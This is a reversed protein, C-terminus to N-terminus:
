SAAIDVGMRKGTQRMLERTRDAYFKFKAEDPAPMGDGIKWMRALAHCAAGYNNDCSKELFPKAKQPENKQLFLAALRYCAPAYSGDCAREFHKAALDKDGGSQAQLIGHIHCAEVHGANCARNCLSTGRPLDKEVIGRVGRVYMVAANYCSNRDGRKSCNENNIELSKAYDKKVATYWQALRFCADADGKNHCADEFGYRLKDPDTYDDELEDAVGSEAM